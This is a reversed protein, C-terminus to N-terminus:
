PLLSGVLVCLSVRYFGHSVKANRYSRNVWKAKVCGHEGAPSANLYDLLASLAKSIAMRMMEKSTYMCKVHALALQSAHCIAPSLKKEARKEVPDPQRCPYHLPPLNQCEKQFEASSRSKMLPSEPHILSSNLRHHFAYHCKSLPLPCLPHLWM